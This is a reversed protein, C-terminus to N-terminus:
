VHHHCEMGAVATNSDGAKKGAAIAANFTKYWSRSIREKIHGSRGTHQVYHWHSPSKGLPYTDM